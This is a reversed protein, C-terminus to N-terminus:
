FSPGRQQVMGQRFITAQREALDHKPKALLQAKFRLNLSVIRRFRANHEKLLSCWCRAVLAVPFGRWSSSAAGVQHRAASVSEDLDPVDLAALADFGQYVVLNSPTTSRTSVSTANRKRLVSMVVPYSTYHPM